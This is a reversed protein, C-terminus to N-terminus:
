AVLQRLFNHGLDVVKQVTVGVSLHGVLREANCADCRIRAFGHALIGCRLYARFDDEVWRPM